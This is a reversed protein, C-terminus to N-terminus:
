FDQCQWWTTSFPYIMITLTYEKKTIVKCWVAPSKKSESLLKELQKGLEIDAAQQWLNHNLRCPQTQM